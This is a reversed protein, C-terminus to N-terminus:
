SQPSDLGLPSRSHDNNLQVFKSLLRMFQERESLDLAGLLQERLAHVGAVLEHLLRQGDSTLQLSLQRRNNEALSRRLLGKEELRAAVTATTSTDLPPM